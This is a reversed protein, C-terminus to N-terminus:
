KPGALATLHRRLELIAGSAQRTLRRRTDPDAHPDALFTRYNIPGIRDPTNFADFLRDLSATVEQTDYQQSAVISSAAGRPGDPWNEIIWVIDYADKPKDRGYLAATKAALFGLLGCVTFEATMRGGDNPLAVERLVTVTDSSLLAGADLALASLRGGMNHKARPNDTMKPRFRQGAPVDPTVPCFFEVVLGLGGCQRWRFSDGTSQFGAGLLCAEIRDYEATDGDILAISLCLDIDTTGV